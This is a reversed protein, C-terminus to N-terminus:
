EEESDMLEGLSDGEEEGDDDDDEEEEEGEDQEDEDISAMTSDDMEEIDDDVMEAAVVSETDAMSQDEDESADIDNKPKKGSGGETKAKRKKDKKQPAERAQAAAIDKARIKFSRTDSRTIHGELWESEDELGAKKLQKSAKSLFSDLREKNFVVESAVKGQANLQKETLTKKGGDAREGVEVHETAALLLCMTRPTMTTSLEELLSSQLPSALKTLDRKMQLQILKTFTSYVRKTSKLLSVMFAANDDCDEAIGSVNSVSCAVALLRGAVYEMAQDTAKPDNLHPLVKFCLYDADTLAIDIATQISSAVLGLERPRTLGKLPEIDAVTDIVSLKCPKRPPADLEDDFSASIQLRVLMAISLKKVIGVACDDKNLHEDISKRHHKPWDDSTMIPFLATARSKAIDSGSDKSPLLPMRTDGDLHGGLLVAAEVAVMPSVFTPREIDINDRHDLGLPSVWAGGNKEWCSLLSAGFSMRVSPDSCASGACAILKVCERAETEMSHSLLEALLGGRKIKRGESDEFERVPSALALLHNRLKLAYESITREDPPAVKGKTYFLFTKKTSPVDMAARNFMTHLLTFARREKTMQHNPHDDTMRQMARVVVSLSLVTLPVDNNGKDVQAISTRNIKSCHSAFESFALSGLVMSSIVFGTKLALVNDDAEHKWAIAAPDFRRGAKIIIGSGELLHLAKTLLFTRFRINSTLRTQPNQDEGFTLQSRSSVDEASVGYTRLCHALFTHDSAPCIQRIQDEVAKRAKDLTTKKIEKPGAVDEDVTLNPHDNEEGTKKKKKKKTPKGKEAAAKKEKASPTALITAAKDVADTRLRFLRETVEGPDRGSTDSVDSGMLTEAASAVLLCTALLGATREKKAEASTDDNEAQKKQVATLYDDLKSKAVRKRLLAFAKSLEDNPSVRDEDAAVADFNSMEAQVVVAESCSALLFAIPEAIKNRAIEILTPGQAKKSKGGGKKGKASVKKTPPQEVAALKGDQLCLEFRIPPDSPSGDDEEGDSEDEGEDSDSSMPQSLQSGHKKARDRRAKKDAKDEAPTVYRELQSSLIDAVVDCIATGVRAKGRRVIPVPTTNGELSASPTNSDEGNADEGCPLLEVLSSYVEMRVSPQHQTLCRRLYGRIEDLTAGGSGLSFNASAAGETNGSVVVIGILMCLINVAVARREPDTCFIAKKGLLFCHDVNDEVDRYRRRCCQHHLVANLAPVVSAIAVAPPMGGGPINSLYNIITPIFNASLIDPATDTALATIASSAVDGLSEFSGLALDRLLFSHQVANPAMGCFKGSATHLISRCLPSVDSNSSLSSMTGSHAKSGATVFLFALIRRGIDASAENAQSSVNSGTNRLEDLPCKGERSLKKVVSSAVGFTPAVCTVTPSDKKVCDVLLFGLNVLSQMLGTLEAGIGDKSSAFGVVSQICSFVHRGAKDSRRARGELSGLSSGDRFEASLREDTPDKEALLVSAGAVANFWPSQARKTAITQEEVVLDRAAELATARTRPLASAATLGLCLRFPTLRLYRFPATTDDEGLALAPVDGKVLRLVAKVLDPDGRLGTGTPAIHCFIFYILFKTCPSLPAFGRFLYYCICTQAVMFFTVMPEHLTRM